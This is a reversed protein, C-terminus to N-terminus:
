KMTICFFISLCPIRFCLQKVIYPSLSIM